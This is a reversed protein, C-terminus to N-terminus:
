HWIGAPCCPAPVPAMSHLAEPSARCGPAMRLDTPMVPVSPVGIVRTAPSCFSRIQLAVAALVSCGSAYLDAARLAHNCVTGTVSRSLAAKTPEPHRGMLRPQNRDKRTTDPQPLIPRQSALAQCCLHGGLQGDLDLPRLLMHHGQENLPGIQEELLLCVLDADLGSIRRIEIVRYVDGETLRQRRHKGHADPLREVLEPRNQIVRDPHQRVDRWRAPVSLEDDGSVTVAEVACWSLRPEALAQVRDAARLCSREDLRDLGEPFGAAIRGVVCQPDQM